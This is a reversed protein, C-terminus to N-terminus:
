QGVQYVDQQADKWYAEPDNGSTLTEFRVREGRSPSDQERAWWNNLFKGHDVKRHRPTSQEWAYARKSQALLDVRPYADLANTELKRAKEPTIDKWKECLYRCLESIEPAHDSRLQQNMKSRQYKLIGVM